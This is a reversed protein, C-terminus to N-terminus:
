CSRTRGRDLPTISHQQRATDSTLYLGDDTPVAAVARPHQKGHLIGEVNTFDYSARIIRCEDGYDGTLVWLCDQWPDHVINHVHRIARQPFTYAVDWCM